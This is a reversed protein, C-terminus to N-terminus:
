QMGYLHLWGWHGCKCQHEVFKFPDGALLTYMKENCEPCLHVVDGNPLTHTKHKKLGHCPAGKKCPCEAGACVGGGATGSSSGSIKSDNECANALDRGFERVQENAAGVIGWAMKASADRKRAYSRTLYLTILLVIIIIGFIYVLKM